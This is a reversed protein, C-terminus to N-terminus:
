LHNIVTWFHVKLEGGSWRPAGQSLIIKSPLNKNEMMLKDLNSSILKNKNDYKTNINSNQVGFRFGEGWVRYRSITLPVNSALNLSLIWGNPRM